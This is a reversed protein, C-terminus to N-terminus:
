AEKQRKQWGCNECELIYPRPMLEPEFGVDISYSGCDPCRDPSGSEHRMVAMGFTGIVTQVADLVIEADNRTANNVHTLWNGLDWANKCIAKLYGRIYENHDGPAITNAILNSWGVVDNKKPAEQGNPVMKPRALTRVFQILTERCKVGVAQFDEAEEASDCSEAAQEWRRWVPTFRSRHGPNPAGRQAAMVRLMVGIHFSLTYDLSPFYYQSYLNTPNTIVWYRDKNTHVDWCDYDNGAVHESMIREAHQVKEDRAQTEVYDSIARKSIPNSMTYSSLIHKVPPPPITCEGQVKSKRKRGNKHANERQRKYAFGDEIESVHKAM